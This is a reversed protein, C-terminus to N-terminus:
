KFLAAHINCVEYINEADHFASQVQMLLRGCLSLDLRKSTYCWRCNANVHLCLLVRCISGKVHRRQGPRGTIMQESITERQHQTLM